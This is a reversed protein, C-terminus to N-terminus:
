KNCTYVIFTYHAMQRYKVQYGHQRLLESLFAATTLYEDQIEEWIEELGASLLQERERARANEDLFMNDGIVIRGGPKVVRVMEDIAQQKDKDTLHHLAYTTVVADVQHDELPLALFNGERLEVRPLKQRARLLMQRSQDVGIVSIGQKVLRAALNGTGIGVECVLKCHSVLSAATSLVQEYNEHPQYGRSRRNAVSRDYTEALRDFNWKDQWQELSSRKTLTKGIAKIMPLESERNISLSFDIQELTARVRQLREEELKIQELQQQILKRATYNIGSEQNHLLAEFFKLIQPVTFGLQRLVLVLELLRIEDESYLRYGAKSVERPAILGKEEYYRITRTTTGLREAVEGITKLM